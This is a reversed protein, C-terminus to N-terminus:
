VLELVKTGDGLLEIEHREIDVARKWQAAMGFTAFSSSNLLGIPNLLRRFKNNYCWYCKRQLAQMDTFDLVRSLEGLENSVTANLGGDEGM